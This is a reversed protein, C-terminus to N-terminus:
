HPEGQPTGTQGGQFETEAPCAVSPLTFSFISGRGLESEIAVQGGLKEVIRRV